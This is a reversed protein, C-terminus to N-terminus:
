SDTCNIIPIILYQPGHFALLLSRNLNSGVVQQKCSIARPINKVKLIISFNRVHISSEKGELCAKYLVLGKVDNVTATDLYLYIDSIFFNNVQLMFIDLYVFWEM